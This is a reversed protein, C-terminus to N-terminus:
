TSSSIVARNSRGLISPGSGGEKGYLISRLGSMVLAAVFFSPMAGIDAHGRDFASTLTMIPMQTQSNEKM